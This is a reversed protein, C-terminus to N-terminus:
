PLKFIFFQSPKAPSANNTYRFQGGIDFTNTTLAQWNTLPITLNTSALVVYNSGPPGGIGSFILSTGSLNFTGFQPKPSGAVLTFNTSGYSPQWSVSSPLGLSTFSGSYSDPSLVSVVSFSTGNTPVYGNNLTANFAGALLIHTFPTYYSGSYIQFSGYNTASNLSVNLSGGSQTVFPRMSIFGSQVTIAGSNTMFPASVHCVNTGASKVITGQNIIYEYGGVYDGATDLNNGDGALNILGSPQNLLGGQYSASGDNISRIEGGFFPNASTNTVNITGANALHGYLVLLTNIMNITGGAAVTLSSSPYIVMGGNTMQLVGGNTVLMLSNVWLIYYQSSLSPIFLTQVGVAGGGAGLTLNGVNTTYYSRGVDLAVTYTGPTTILVDDTNTPVRNPSWNNAVSWNGGSTNTWIITASHAVNSIALLAMGAILVRILKM